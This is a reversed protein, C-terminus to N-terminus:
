VDVSVAGFLEELKQRSKRAPYYFGCRVMAQGLFILVGTVAAIKWGEPNGVVLALLATLFAFIPMSFWVIMFGFVFGRLRMRVDVITRNAQTRIRGVIVPQFSDRLVIDGPIAMIKFETGQIKGRFMKGKPRTFWERETDTVSQLLTRVEEPTRRSEIQFKMQPLFHM